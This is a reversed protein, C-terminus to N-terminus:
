RSDEFLGATPPLGALEGGEVNCVHSLVHVGAKADSLGDVVLIHPVAM